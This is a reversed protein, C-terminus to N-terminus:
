NKKIFKKTEDINIDININEMINIDENEEHISDDSNKSDSSDEKQSELDDENHVGYIDELLRFLFRKM